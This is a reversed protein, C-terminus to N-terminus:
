VTSSELFDLQPKLLRLLTLGRKHRHKSSVSENGSQQNNALSFTSDLFELVRTEDWRIQALPADEEDKQKLTTAVALRKGLGM